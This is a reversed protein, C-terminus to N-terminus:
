GKHFHYLMTDGIKRSSALVLHTFTPITEKRNPGEYFVSAGDTLLSKQELDQLLYFADMDYPPDIYCIDFPEHLSSLALHAEKRILLCQSAVDLREINKKISLCAEHDQEIFTCFRAGRSLAELGMAGSGAFIDAFHAEEIDNQCINFVCARVQSTTPRTASGKPVDITRSRFKGSIIRM